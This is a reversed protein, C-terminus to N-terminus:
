NENQKELSFQNRALLYIAVRGEKSFVIREDNIEIVERGEPTRGGVFYRSGDATQFHPTPTMRVGTIALELPTNTVNKPGVAAGRHELRAVSRLDNELRRINNSYHPSAASGSLIFLGNGIYEVKINPESLFEVIRQQIDQAVHYNSYIKQIKLEAIKQRIIEEQAKTSIYGSLSLYDGQLKLVLEKENLGLVQQSLLRMSETSVVSKPTSPNTAMAGFASVLVAGLIFYGSRSFKAVIGESKRNALVVPVLNQSTHVFDPTSIDEAKQTISAKYAEPILLLLKVEGLDLGLDQTVTGVSSGAEMVQGNIKLTAYLVLKISSETVEIVFHTPKLEPDLLRIEDDDACGVKYQGPALILEAGQHLGALVSLKIQSTMLDHSM